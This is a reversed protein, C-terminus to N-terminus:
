QDAATQFSVRLGNIDATAVRYRADPTTEPEAETYNVWSDFTAPDTHFSVPAIDSHRNVFVLTPLPVGYREASEMEEALARLRDALTDTRHKFM